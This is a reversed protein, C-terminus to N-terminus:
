HWTIVRPIVSRSPKFSSNWIIHNDVTGLWIQLDKTQVLVRAPTTWNWLFDVAGLLRLVAILTCLWVQACSHHGWVYLQKRQFPFGFCQLHIKIAMTSMLVPKREWFVTQHEEKWLEWLSARQRAKRQSSELESGSCEAGPAASELELEWWVAWCCAPIDGASSGKILAGPVGKAVGRWRELLPDVWNKILVTGNKFWQVNCRLRDKSGPWNRSLACCLKDTSCHYLWLSVERSGWLAAEWCQISEEKGTQTHLLSCAMPLNPLVLSALNSPLCFLWWGTMSVFPLYIGSLIFYLCWCCASSLGTHHETGLHSQSLVGSRPTFLLKSKLWLRKMAITVWSCCPSPKDCPLPRYVVM